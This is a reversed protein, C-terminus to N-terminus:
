RRWDKKAYWLLSKEEENTLRIDFKEWLVLSVWYVAEKPSYGRDILTNLAQYGVRYDVDKGKSERVFIEAQIEGVVNDMLTPNDPSPSLSHGVEHLKINSSSKLPLYIGDGKINLGKTGLAWNTAEEDSWGQGKTRDFVLKELDKQSLIKM